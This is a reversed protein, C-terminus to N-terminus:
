LTKSLKTLKPAIQKIYEIRDGSVGFIISEYDCHWIRCSDAELFKPIEARDIWISGDTTLEIADINLRKSHVLKYKFPKLVFEKKNLQKVDGDINCALVCCLLFIVRVFLSVRRVLNKRHKM